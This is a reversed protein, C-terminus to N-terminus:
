IWMHTLTSRGAEVNMNFSGSILFRCVPFSAPLRGASGARGPSHAFLCFGFLINIKEKSDFRRPLLEGGCVCVRVRGPRSCASARLEGETTRRGGLGVQRNRLRPRAGRRSHHAARKREARGGRGLGRSFGRGEGSGGDTRPSAGGGGGGEASSVPLRSTVDARRHAASVASLRAAAGRQRRLRSLPACIPPPPPQRGSQSIPTDRLHHKRARPPHLRWRFQKIIIKRIIKRPTFTAPLLQLQLLWASTVM